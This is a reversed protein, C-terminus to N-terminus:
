QGVLVLSDVGALALLETRAFFRVLLQTNPALGFDARIKVLWSNSFGDPHGRLDSALINETGSESVPLCDAECMWSSSIRLYGCCPFLSLIRTSFLKSVVDTVHCDFSETTNECSYHAMACNYSKEIVWVQVSKLKRVLTSGENPLRKKLYPHNYNKNLLTAQKVKLNKMWCLKCVARMSQSKGSALPQKQCM